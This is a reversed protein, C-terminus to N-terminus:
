MEQLVLSLWKYINLQRLFALNVKIMETSFIKQYKEGTEIGQLFNNIM